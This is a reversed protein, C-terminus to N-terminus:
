PNDDFATGTPYPGVVDDDKRLTTTIRHAIRWEGDVRRYRVDYYGSMSVTPHQGDADVAHFTGRFELHVRALADDGDITLQPMHMLHLGDYPANSCYAALQARGTPRAPSGPAAGRAQYVGDDTFLAAWAEGDRSDFTRAYRGELELLELRDEIEQLRAEDM